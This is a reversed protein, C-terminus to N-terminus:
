NSFIILSKLNLEISSGEKVSEPSRSGRGAWEFDSSDLVKHFDRGEGSPLNIVKPEANFNYLCWLAHHNQWRNVMLVNDNCFTLLQDKDPFSLVPNSKRLNILHRYYSYLKANQTENMTERNLRSRLFTEEAAPDPIPEEGHGYFGEFERQRGERVLRNLEPDTHSVFYLFPRTEGYEEGMFILPIYPSTLVTGAVLKLTEFDVLTSLRDGNKRNGVQDHNQSFVVFQSAQNNGTRSGFTRLRYKSYKGDYVFASTFVKQLDPIEGFDAYYGEREGTVLAHLAHHFDDNWQAQLGYGGMSEPTIYRVNNLDSEAILYHPKGTLRNLVATERALEQMIHESSFDYIAHVADLRLADVHFDRFWMQVNQVVYNRLGDSHRDDFNIAKGWPTKYKATFYPGYHELYNGEPGLHNYVVDIIVAMGLNHCQDVLEMLGTAGGYSAQVAFPYVGDYGWNREGPFSAVPMLEIATIGLEKLERLKEIVGHFNGEETFTGTHLEYIIYDSLPLNMWGQDHWEFDHFSIVESPGHVGNPQSRSAPDPRPGAKDTIFMYRTGANIHSVNLNWYGYEEKNLKLRQTEPGTIELYAVGALPAWLSFECQGSKYNAGVTKRISM